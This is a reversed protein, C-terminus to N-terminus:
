QNSDDADDRNARGPEVFVDRKRTHDYSKDGFYFTDKQEYNEREVYVSGHWRETQSENASPADWLTV